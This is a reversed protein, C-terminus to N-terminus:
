PKMINEKEQIQLLFEEATIGIQEEGSIEALGDGKQKGYSGFQAHNGGLICMERSDKPLLSRGKELNSRNLVGDESGYVTLVMLDTDSLDKTTYAALLLLGDIEDTHKAAFSAVMAGGLSHGGLYWGDYDYNELLTEARNMGFFAMHFPMDVLFCDVGSEALRYMLPAYAKTDVKAGPYFILANEEGPGDFFYGQKIETIEVAEIDNQGQDTSQEAGSELYQEVNVAPYYTGLYVAMIGVMSVLVAVTVVISFYKRKKSNGTKALQRGAKRKECYNQGIRFNKFEGSIMHRIITMM